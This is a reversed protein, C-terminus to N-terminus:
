CSHCVFDQQNNFRGKLSYKEAFFTVFVLCFSVSFQLSFVM